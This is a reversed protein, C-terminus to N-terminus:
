CHWEMTTFIDAGCGVLGSQKAYGLHGRQFIAELSKLLSHHNYPTNSVTGPKIFPSLLVAGTRDGGFSKFVSAYKGNASVITAPRPTLNPGEQQHCCKEGKFVWTSVKTKPDIFEEATGSEDVNIALLGGTQFAPSGNIILVWTQLFADISVWGGHRGDVCPSDYGDECLGPTIFNFNASTQLAQLAQPLPALNVM